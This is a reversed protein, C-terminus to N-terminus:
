HQEHAERRVEVANTRHTTRVYGWPTNIHTSEPLAPCHALAAADPFAGDREFDLTLVTMRLGGLAIETGPALANIAPSSDDTQSALRMVPEGTPALAAATDQGAGTPAEDTASHASPRTLSAYLGAYFGELEPSYYGTGVVEEHLQRMTAITSALTQAHTASDPFLDNIRDHLGPSAISHDFRMAMSMLLGDTPELPFTARDSHSPEPQDSGLRELAALLANRAREAELAELHGLWPALAGLVADTLVTLRRTGEPAAASMENSM